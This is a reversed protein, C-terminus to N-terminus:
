ITINEEAMIIHYTSDKGFGIDHVRMYAQMFNFSLLSKMKIAILVVFYIGTSLILM